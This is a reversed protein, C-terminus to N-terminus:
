SDLDELCARTAEALLRMEAGKIIQLHKAAIFRTQLQACNKQL